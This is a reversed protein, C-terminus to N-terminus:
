VACPVSKSRGVLHEPATVDGTYHYFRMRHELEGNHLAAGDEEFTLIKQPSRHDDWTQMWLYKPLEHVRLKGEERLSSVILALKNQDM